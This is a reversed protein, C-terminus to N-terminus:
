QVGSTLKAALEPVSEDWESVYTIVAVPVLGYKSAFARSKFSRRPPFGSTASVHAEDPEIKGPQEYVVLCYRHVGAGQGPASGFFATISEGSSLDSPGANVHVWHQWEGFKPDAPNPADPDSLILTYLKDAEGAWTVTPFYQGQTPTIHEGETVTKDGFALAVDFKPEFADVVGAAAEPFSPMESLLPYSPLIHRERDSSHLCVAIDLQM